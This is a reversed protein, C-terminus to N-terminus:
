MIRSEVYHRLMHPTCKVGSVKSLNNFIEEASNKTMYKGPNTGRHNVFVTDYESEERYNCIYDDIAFILEMSVPVERSLTKARHDKHYLEEEDRKVVSIYGFEESPDPESIDSFRLGLLEGVRLGTEYLLRFMLKNRESLGWKADSDFSNYLTEIQRPFLRKVKDKNTKKRTFESVCVQKPSVKHNYALAKFWNKNESSTQPIDDILELYGHLREYFRYFSSVTALYRNLTAPAKRNGRGAETDLYNVFSFMLRPRVEHFKLGEKKLWTFYEKLDRCYTEVTGPSMGKQELHRIFLSVEEVVRYSEDVLVYSINSNNSITKEIRVVGGGIVRVYLGIYLICYSRKDKWKKLLFFM